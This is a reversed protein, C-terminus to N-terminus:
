EGEDIEIEIGKAQYYSFNNLVEDVGLLEKESLATISADDMLDSNEPEKSPIYVLDSGDQASAILTMFGSEKLKELLAITIPENM